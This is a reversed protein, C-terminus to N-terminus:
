PSAEKSFDELGLRCVKGWVDCFVKEDGDSTPMKQELDFNVSNYIAYKGEVSDHIRAMSFYNEDMLETPPNTDSNHKIDWGCRYPNSCPVYNEVGNAVLESIGVREQTTSDFWYINIDPDAIEWKKTEPNLVELFTHARFDKQMSYVDVIRTEYGLAQLLKSMLGSRTSCEMAVPKERRNEVVDLFAAYHKAPERWLNQFEGSVQHKSYQQIFGRVEDVQAYFGEVCELALQDKIASVEKIIAAQEEHKGFEDAGEFALAIVGALIIFTGIFPPIYKM